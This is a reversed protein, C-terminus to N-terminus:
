RKAGKLRKIQPAKMLILLTAFFPLIPIRFRVLAGYNFSTLGIAIALIITFSLCFLMVPDTGIKRLKAIGYASFFVSLFLYLFYTSELSSAFMVANRVQWPFPGFLSIAIAIPTKKIIGAPTYEFDGISYGSGGAQEQINLHDSKFGEAQTELSESSYETFTESLSQFLLFATLGASLIMVPALVYRFVSSGVVKNQYNIFAYILLGPMTAVVIYSKINFIIFLSLMLGLIYKPTLKFEIAVKHFSYIFVCLMGLCITDKNVASGWFIVSPIKLFAFSLSDKYDSYFTAFLIYLKFIALYSLFSFAMCTVLYSNFCFLSIISSIRAVMLSKIDKLIYGEGYVYDSQNVIWTPFNERSAIKSFIVNLGDGFNEFLMYRNFIAGNIFYTCSDGGRYYFAYILYFGFAGLMKYWFGKLFYKKYLPNSKNKNIILTSIYYFLVLYLPALLDLYTYFNPRM